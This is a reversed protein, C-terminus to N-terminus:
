EVGADYYCTITEDSADTSQTAVLAAVSTVLCIKVVGMDTNYTYGIRCATIPIRTFSHKRSRWTRMAQKHKECVLRWNPKFVRLLFFNRVKQGGEVSSSMEM